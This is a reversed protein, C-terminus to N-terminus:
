FNVNIRNIHDEVIANQLVCVRPLFLWFVLLFLDHSLTVSDIIKIYIIYNM